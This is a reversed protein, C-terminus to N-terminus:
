LTYVRRIFANAAASPSASSAACSWCAHAYLLKAPSDKGVGCGLVLHPQYLDMQRKLITAYKAAYACIENANAQGGGGVKKIQIYAYRNVVEHNWGGRAFRDFAETAPEDDLAAAVAHAFMGAKGNWWGKPSRDQRVGDQGLPRFQRDRVEDRMDHAYPSDRMNPERFVFLVRVRQALYAEPTPVGDRYLRNRFTRDDAAHELADFLINETATLRRPTVEV